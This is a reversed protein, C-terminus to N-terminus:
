PPAWPARVGAPGSQVAAAATAALRDQSAEPIMGPLLTACRDMAVRAKSSRRRSVRGSPATSAPQYRPQAYAHGRSELQTAAARAPM